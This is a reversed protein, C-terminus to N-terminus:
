PRCCRKYKKGSGCPCLENPGIKGRLRMASALRGERIAVGARRLRDIEPGSMGDFNVRRWQVDELRGAGSYTLELLVRDCEHQSAHVAQTHHLAVDANRPVSPSWSFLTLRVNGHTSLPRPTGLQENSRLQEGIYDSIQGRFKMDMGVVFSALEARGAINCKSLFEILETIRLPMEQRPSTPSEGHLVARYYDDIPTRFGNFTLATNGDKSGFRTAAYMSYNNHVLYLGLHDLEDNLDIHESLAARM